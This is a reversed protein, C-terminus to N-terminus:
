PYGHASSMITVVRAGDVQFFEPRQVLEKQLCLACELLCVDLSFTPYILQCHLASQLCLTHGRSQANFIKLYMRDHKEMYLPGLARAHRRARPTGGM